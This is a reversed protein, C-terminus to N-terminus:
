HQFAANTILRVRLEGGDAPEVAVEWVFGGGRERDVRFTAPARTEMARRLVDAEPSREWEPVADWFTEVGGRGGLLDLIELLSANAYRIRWDRGLVAVGERAHGFLADHGRARAEHTTNVTRILPFSCATALSSRGPLIVALHPTPLPVSLGAASPLARALRTGPM